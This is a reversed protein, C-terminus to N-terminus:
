DLHYAKAMLCAFCFLSFLFYHHVRISSSRAEEGHEALILSPDEAGGVVCRSFVNM